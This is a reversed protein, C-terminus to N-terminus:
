PSAANGYWLRNQQLCVLDDLLWICLLSFHPGIMVQVPSSRLTAESHQMRAAPTPLNMM